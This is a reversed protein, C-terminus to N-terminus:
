IVKNLYSQCMFLYVFKIYVAHLFTYMWSVIVLFRHKMDMVELLKRRGEKNMIIITHTHYSCKALSRGKECTKSRSLITNNVAPVISYM